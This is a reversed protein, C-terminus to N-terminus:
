NYVFRTKRIGGFCCLHCSFVKVGSALVIVGCSSGTERERVGRNGPTSVESIGRHHNSRTRISNDRNSNARGDPLLSSCQSGQSHNRPSDPSSPSATKPPRHLHSGPSNSPNSSNHSTKHSSPPPSPSPNNNSSPNPNRHLHPNTHPRSGLGSPRPNAGLSRGRPPLRGGGGRRHARGLFM